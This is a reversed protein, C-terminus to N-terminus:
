YSFFKATCLSTALGGVSVAAISLLLTDLSFLVGGIAVVIADTVLILLGVNIRLRSGYLKALLDIGGTSADHRLLLGFGVGICTGGLVAAIFPDTRLPAAFNPLRDLADIFFSLCILGLLSHLFLPKDRFWAYAFVPASLLLLALGVKARFLYHIILAMGILGGDLVQYPKLFYVIGAAILLCGILVAAIKHLSLVEIM